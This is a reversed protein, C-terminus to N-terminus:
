PNLLADRLGSTREIRRLLATKFVAEPGVMDLHRRARTIATYVLERSLVPADRDPLIFLVRDFESGQSKHVTMAYVTEHPPLRLPHIWRLAGDEGQFVAKVGDGAPDPLMMGVDGNFLRLHYDNRTIMVPRGPYWPTGPDILGELVLLQEVADNVALAGYPGERLACLIRFRDFRGLADEDLTKFYHGFYAKVRRRLAGILGDIGGVDMHTVDGFSGRRIVATAANLDGDRVARSLTGIGSKEGFRYNRTLQIIWDDAEPKPEDTDMGSAGATMRATECIDGFVAGAEVSALQDKDGLLMIRAHPPLAQVVKSMLALDIMSAEDVVLFDVPLPNKAHHRFYPSGPITGMLRHLTSATEPVRAKVSEACDLRAKSARVAAAMRAAAKGTPAALAIRPSNRMDQALFLALIRAVTTTKGTGPGGSIVAVRKKLAMFAAMRQRDPGQGPFFRKLGAELLRLDVEPDNTVRERIACVLRDQYAWYRYLYLRGQADLIMPKFEGPRGVVGSALLMEAWSEPEPFHFDEGDAASGEIVIEAVRGLDLCVHGEETRRSVLAAALGVELIPAECLDMMFRGFYVNLPSLLGQEQLRSLKDDVDIGLRL